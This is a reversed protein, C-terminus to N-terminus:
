ENMSQLEAFIFGVLSFLGAFWLWLPWSYYDVGPISLTRRIKSGRPKEPRGEQRDRRLNELSTMFQEFLDALGDPVGTRSDFVQRATKGSGDRCAPEIAQIQQKRATLLEVTRIDGWRAMWHLLTSGSHNKHHINAGADLLLELFGCQHSSIATFLPSNGFKHDAIDKDAGKSLLFRGVDVRDTMAAWDMPTNGRGSRSELSSGASILAQLHPVGSRAARHIPEVGGADKVAINARHKILLQLCAVDELEAALHIPAYHKRDQVNVNAGAWLLNEAAWVDSRRIAWHLPTRGWADISDIQCRWLPNLLMRDIKLPFINLVLKHLNSFEFIEICQTEPFLTQFAM